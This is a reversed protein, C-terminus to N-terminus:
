FVHLDTRKNVRYTDLYVRRLKMITQFIYTSKSKQKSQVYRSNSLDDVVAELLSEIEVKYIHRSM